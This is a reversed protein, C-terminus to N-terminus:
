KSKSNRILISDAEGRWPSVYHGGEYPMEQSYEGTRTNFWQYTGQKNWLSKDYNSLQYNEQPVYYLFVGDSSRLGYASLTHDKYPSLNNYDYREFFEALHKYYEFKPKPFKSAQEFPNYIIVNWAAGQWYYASYVGAFYCM